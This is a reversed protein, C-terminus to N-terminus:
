NLTLRPDIISNIVDVIFNILTFLFASIMLAAQVMAYDRSAVSQNLLQGFGAWSFVTEVVIAGSLQMGLDLGLITVVPILANRLAYKLFVQTNSVGKAYTATIYDESLTDAMGSRAIRTVGAAMPYAMTIVPLVFYEIGGTGLAPLWGLNVSFVFILMIGLWMPAMSQGLLAFAMCFFELGKGRNAGAFIGLPISLLAAILVTSVALKATVPLRAAIIRLVPQKYQTSIGLDGKLLGQLYIVFQELIPKDLGMKKEMEAIAEEDAFDGLMLIAPNGPALRILIFAFFIVVFIVFFSQLFRKGIYRLM